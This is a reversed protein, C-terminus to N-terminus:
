AAAEPERPVLAQFAVPRFQFDVVPGLQTPEGDLVAPIRGAAWARGKRVHAVAVTRDSRWDGLTALFGLRFIEVAGAPDIAVAELCGEEENVARSVLPCMLALAEAKARPAGDLSFRLRGSLTRRLARRTRTWVRGIDGQRAAERADAWLAPSGLIAAVHFAHGEIVGGSVPRTVGDALVDTLATRWDRTGYLARSLRNMTGGPLPAVLPGHPGAMEAGTRATGDGAIIVLLDPRTELAAALCAGVGGGEPVTVAGTMGQEALIREAEAAAGPGVGGSAPNVVVAVRGLAGKGTRAKM